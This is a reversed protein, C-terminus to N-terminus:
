RQQTNADPSVLMMKNVVSELEIFNMDMSSTFRPRLQHYRSDSLYEDGGLILVVRFSDFIDKMAIMQELEHWNAAFLIMLDGSQPRFNIPLLSYMSGHLVVMDKLLEINRLASLCRQPCTFYKCDNRCLAEHLSYFFANM